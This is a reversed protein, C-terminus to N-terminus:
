FIFKLALQMTRPNNSFVLQPQNFSPDSPTLFSRVAGSTFGLSDVQNVSGPIYQSHNFVNLAQAQFELATRETFNVRKVVTLDWNNIRRLPLSNRSANALAGPGAVIYQANPNDALYAVTAGASNTLPTVDSGTGPTGAPNFVSRDGFSDGNLNSDVASQVTAFEPSQFTYVPVIEWNGLLNRALFNSNKFFPEDYIVQLTVRHRRDLASTSLDSGFNQFDQPRRPTLLTSFVDATSNDQAHSWTYAFQFQLGNTLHKNLQTQLGHYISQGFPEFATVNSTFGAASFAPVFSSNAKISDLTIPLADLAAQGPNSLLTPLFDTPTVKNQRNLRTQVPLHIGRTGVYRIELTYDKGLLQQIGFDWTETYPLRQDPIFAATAARQDDLSAFTQLGAGPATGPLGGGALFGTTPFPCVATPTGPVDCTGTFQPGLSLTGLNDYLVDYALAFGGRISTNGSSFPSYAFGVRPAFNKYQPQPEHFDILGPVSAASNFSQLREGFPVSTFEYRLGMDVSLQPTIRWNDAGYAYIATQDGPYNFNGTSREGFDTPVVDTLYDELTNYFYDGRERQIFHSPALYKRGEVGFKLNHNGIVWSLNEIAQYTNQIGFQPANGDPGINTGNFEDITINPFEALGPFNIPPIPIFQSFRNFGVRFENNINPTFNHYESLTVVQNRSPIPVFFAPLQAGIDLTDNKEYIYRGRLQDKQSINWDVSDATTFTNSFLSGAIPLFGSAVPVGSVTVSDPCTPDSTTAAPLFKQLISLNTASLGPITGLTAFGAATPSCATSTASRGVPNYEANGFFFLHDKIIPGGIQGGFRNNDYRPNHGNTGRVVQADDANLNRNQFYEYLTGHFNNTGSKIVTNFQGGSSHGFEPSFQNQLVTFNQVADNPITVLPGTVSKNNNDVGEITFNNNRPRQGSVSPGTGAGIGGSSAVGSNLLSLNLVGLGVSASPVDAAQKPEFTTQIQPTTTDITAAQATVEVTTTAGSVQLGINATATKNLEVPIGRVAGTLGNSAVSLDYTGVPLNKLHYEGSGNSVTTTKVGTAVNTAEVTTNPVVAGSADKVTGVLDGSIAQAFGFTAFALLIFTAFICRVANKM